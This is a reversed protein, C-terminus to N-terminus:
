RKDSSAADTTAVLALSATRARWGLTKIKCGSTGPLFQLYARHRIFPLDIPAGTERAEIYGHVGGSFTGWILCGGHKPEMEIQVRISKTVGDPAKLVIEHDHIALIINPWFRVNKSHTQNTDPDAVQFCELLM